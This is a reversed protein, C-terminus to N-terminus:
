HFYCNYKLLILSTCAYVYEENSYKMLVLWGDLGVPEWVISIINLYMYTDLM